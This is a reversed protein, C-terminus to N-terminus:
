ATASAGDDVRKDRARSATNAEGARPKNDGRTSAGFQIAGEDGDDRTPAVVEGAGVEDVSHTRLQVVV